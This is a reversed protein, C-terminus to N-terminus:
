FFKLNRGKPMHTRNYHRAYDSYTANFMSISNNYRKNEGNWYDIKSEMWQIYVEDYPAPVLLDTAVSTDATYGNFVVEESSEHTDIIEAKIREDLESLWGIKDEETYSNPKLTNIKAIAQAITM